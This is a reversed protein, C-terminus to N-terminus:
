LRVDLSDISIRVQGTMRLKIGAFSEYRGLGGSWRIVQNYEGIEGLSVYNIPGYERGNNSISLGITSPGNGSLADLIISRIPFYSKRTSSRFFTSIECELNDDYESASESLIGINNGIRDGVYYKGYAFSVGKATWPGTGNQIESDLIIWNGDVYAITDNKITWGVFQRGHWKFSFSYSKELDNVDYRTNLMENVTANSIAQASGQGMAHVAYSEGRQRGIFAFTDLYRIGGCVYGVDVRSGECRVFPTTSSQTVRFRQSAESGMIYLDNKINIVFKNLDPLEEADFFSLPNISGANDIDSYFAPSGDSPIFVHRGDIFDVSDSPLFDPDTIQQLGSIQNYTYGAGGKVIIVLNVQGLSFVVDSTGSISGIQQPGTARDIRYFYQGIVKYLTEDVYWTASGRCSYTNATFALDIGPTRLLTGELSFMNVLSENIKPTDEVGALGTPLKVQTM